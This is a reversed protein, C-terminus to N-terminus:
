VKCLYRKMNEIMMGFKMWIPGGLRSIYKFINLFPGLNDDLSTKCFFPSCKSCVFVWPDGEPGGGKM